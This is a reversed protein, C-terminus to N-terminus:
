LDNNVLPWSVKLKRLYNRVFTLLGSQCEFFVEFNALIIAFAQKATLM